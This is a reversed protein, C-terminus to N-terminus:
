ASPPTRTPPTAPASYPRRNTTSIPRWYHDPTRPISPSRWWVAKTTSSGCVGPRAPGLRRGGRDSHRDRVAPVQGDPGGRLRGETPDLVLAGPLAAAGRRRRVPDIELCALRAGVAEAVLAAGFGILGLGIVAVNLGPTFGGRRLAHLGSLPCTASPRRKSPWAKRCRFRRGNWLTSWRSTGAGPRLGQRGAGADPDRIRDRGVEGILNYGCSVPFKAGAGQNRGTVRYEPLVGMGETTAADIDAFSDWVEEVM